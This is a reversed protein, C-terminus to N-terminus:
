ATYNLDAYPSAATSAAAVPSGQAGSQAYGQAGNIGMNALGTWIADQQGNRTVANQYGNTAQLGQASLIQGTQGQSQSILQALQDRLTQNGSQLIQTAQEKSMGFMNQFMAADMSTATQLAQQQAQQGMKAQDANITGASRAYDQAAQISPAALATAASGRGLGGTAALANRIANQTGPLTSYIDKKSQDKAAVAAESNPGYISAAKTQMGDTLGQIADKYQAAGAGMQQTYQLLNQKINDPLSNILQRQYQGASNITNLLASMDVTPLSNGNSILGGIVGMGAGIAAGYPGAASGMAAGQAANNGVDQDAM